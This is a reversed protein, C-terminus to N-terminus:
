EDYAPPTAGAREALKRAVEKLKKIEGAQKDIVFESFGIAEKIVLYHQLIHLHDPVPMGEEIQNRMEEPIKNYIDELLVEIEEKKM